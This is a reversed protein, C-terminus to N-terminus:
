KDSHPGTSLDLVNDVRIILRHKAQPFPNRREEDPSYGDLMETALTKELTGILQFGNEGKMLSLAIRPNEEINKLTQFCFWNEFAVHEGDIIALGKAAAMHPTGSKNTTAVLVVQDKAMMQKVRPPIRM